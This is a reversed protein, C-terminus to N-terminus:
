TLLYLLGFVVLPIGYYVLVKLRNKTEMWWLVRFPRFLGIVTGALALLMLILFIMM